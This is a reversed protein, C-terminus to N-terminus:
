PRKGVVASLQVNRNSRRVPDNKLLFRICSDLMVKQRTIFFMPWSPLIYFGM